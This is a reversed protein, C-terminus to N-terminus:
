FLVGGCAKGNHLANGLEDGAAQPVTTLSQQLRKLFCRHGAVVRFQFTELPQALSLECVPIREYLLAM